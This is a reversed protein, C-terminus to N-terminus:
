CSSNGHEVLQPDGEHESELCGKSSGVLASEGALM